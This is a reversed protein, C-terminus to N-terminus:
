RIAEIHRGHHIFYMALFDKAMISDSCECFQILRAEEVADFPFELLRDVESRRSVPSLCHILMQEFLYACLEPDSNRFKRQYFFAEDLNNHLHVLMLVAIDQRTEELQAKVTSTMYCRAEYYCGYIVAARLIRPAWDAEVSPDSLYTLGLPIQGHDLLWYGSMLYQFRRPIFVQQAYRVAPEPLKWETWFGVTSGNVLEPIAYDLLLYFILCHQKLSDLS